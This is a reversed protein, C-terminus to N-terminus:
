VILRAELTVPVSALAKSIPCNEKAAKAQAQFAANDIRPIQAECVLAIKTVAFGDGQKEFTVSATTHIRTPTFGALSLGHAFAMSFCGAHAAGLLEEPNANPGDASRSKWDYPGSFAGSGLKLQGKGELLNGNWVADATRVPM